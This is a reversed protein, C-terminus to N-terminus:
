PGAIHDVTNKLDELATTTANTHAVFNSEVTHLGAALEDLYNEQLALITESLHRLEAAIARLRPELPNPYYYSLRYHLRGGPILATNIAGQSPATGESFTISLQEFESLSAPLTGGTTAVYRDWVEALSIPLIPIFRYIYNLVHLNGSWGLTRDGLNNFADGWDSMSAYATATAFDGGVPPPDAFSQVFDIYRQVGNLYQSRVLAPPLGRIQDKLGERLYETVNHENLYLRVDIPGVFRQTDILPALSPETSLTLRIDTVKRIQDQETPVTAERSYPSFDVSGSKHAVIEASM